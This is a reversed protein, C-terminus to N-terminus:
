GSIKCYNYGCFGGVYAEKATEEIVVGTVVSAICAVITTLAITKLIESNKFKAFISDLVNKYRDNASSACRGSISDGVLLQALTDRYDNVTNDHALNIDHDVDANVVKSNYRAILYYIVGIVLAAAVASSVGIALLKETDLCGNVTGSFECQHKIIKGEKDKDEISTITGRNAGVFGGCYISSLWTSSKVNCNKSTCAKIEGFEKNLGCFGGIYEGGTVKIYNSPNTDNAHCDKIDGSNRGVFGGCMAKSKSTNATVSGKSTCNNIKGEGNNNLLGKNYGCFGGLCNKGTVNGTSECNEINGFNESVFGGANKGYNVSLDTSSGNITGFNYSVFGANINSKKFINPDKGRYVSCKEIVGGKENIRVFGAADGNKTHNINVMEDYEISVNSIIGYNNLVFGAAQYTIDKVNSSDEITYNEFKVNRFTADSGLTKIFALELNKNRSSRSKIRLNSIKCGNGHFSGNFEEIPNFSQQDNEDCIIDNTLTIKYNGKWYDHGEELNSNKMFTAFKEKGDIVFEKTSNTITGGEENHGAFGGVNSGTGSVIGMAVGIITGNSGNAGAFEGAYNKGNV